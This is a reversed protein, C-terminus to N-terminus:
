SPCAAGELIARFNSQFRETSYCAAHATIREVDFRTADCRKLAAVLDDAAQRGFHVGTVGDIVTEAAGGRGLAVVPKGAAMAEVPAIGFDEIGPFVFGKCAALRRRVEDDSVRGVFTINPGAQAELRPREVGDGVVVLPWGLRNFAEVVLDIRKYAVLRSVVLYYDAPSADSKLVDVPPYVV